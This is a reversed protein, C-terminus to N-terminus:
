VIFRSGRFGIPTSDLCCHLGARAAAGGATRGAVGVRVRFMVGAGRGRPQHRRCDQQARSAMHVETNVACERGVQKSGQVSGQGPLNAQVWFGSRECNLWQLKDEVAKVDM